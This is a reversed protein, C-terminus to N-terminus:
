ILCYSVQRSLEQPDTFGEDLLMVRFTINVACISTRKSYTGLRSVTFSFSLSFNISEEVPCAFSTEEKNFVQYHVMPCSKLRFSWVVAKELFIPAIPAPAHM